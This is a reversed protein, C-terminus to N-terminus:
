VLCQGSTVKDKGAWFFGRVWKNIEELMWVPAEAVLIQHIPRAMIASKILILRGSRQLLGRQWAPLSAIIHDLIPQWHVKNLEKTSLQLGLYRCPFAGLECQLIHKALIGEEVGGRIVIALSKTYNVMLGSANSFIRLLEKVTVLDCVSPKVFLAVDDAYISLRQQLSCGRINSLFGEEAAKVVLKTLVKVTIVFLQPSTPDGQRLGRVLKISKGPSGNVLVRVSATSLLLSIWCLFLDGFGLQRLVEFLFAWSLSDFARSLDLKLFLGSVKRKYIQRAVQRVLIFNDHLCRGKVFASQNMSVLDCLQTRLRNAILKSFLKGFSHVLSIPRFDGVEMADPRKPILTILSRNLKGFGRGDGVGLKLIAAMIDNRIVGWAKQYFLGIFGDPGPALDSPMDRIVKWVEETTFLAELDDLEFWQFGLSDLNVISVRNRVEGLLASYSQFFAEEKELQDTFIRDGVRVAPINKKQEEGM